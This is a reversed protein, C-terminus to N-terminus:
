GKTRLPGAILWHGATVSEILVKGDDEQAQAILDIEDWYKTINPM